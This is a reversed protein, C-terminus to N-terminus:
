GNEGFLVSRHEMLLIVLNRVGLTSLSIHKQAPVLAKLPIRPHNACVRFFARSDVIKVGGGRISGTKVREGDLSAHTRHTTVWASHSAATPEIATLTEGYQARSEAIERRRRLVGLKLVSM